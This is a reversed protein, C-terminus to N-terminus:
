PVVDDTIIDIWAIEPPAGVRIPAVSWGLGRSVFLHTNNEKYWGAIYHASGRPVWFAGLKPLRIQGAHTHGALVLPVKPHVLNPFLAPSHTLVITPHKLKHLWHDPNSKGALCDDTGAICFGDFEVFEEILLQIKHKELFPRWTDPKAGSWYEWNGMIAFTGFKGRPLADFFQVVAKEDWGRTVIDGTLVTIDPQKVQIHMCLKDLWDGQKRIHIDSVHLISLSRHFLSSEFRHKSIRFWEVEEWLRKWGKTPIEDTGFPSPKPSEQSPFFVGMKSARKMTQIHKFWRRPSFNLPM